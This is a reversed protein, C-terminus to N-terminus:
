PLSEQSLPTLNRRIHRPLRLIRLLTTRKPIGAKSLSANRANKSLSKGCTLWKMRSSLCTLVVRLNICPPSVDVFSLYTLDRKSVEGGPIHNADSQKRSIQKAESAIDGQPRNERELTKGIQNGHDNALSQHRPFLDTPHPEVYSEEQTQYSFKRSANKMQAATQEIPKADDVATASSLRGEREAQRKALKAQFQEFSSPQQGNVKQRRLTAKGVVPRSPPLEPEALKAPKREQTTHRGYNEKAAEVAELKSKLAQNEDVLGANEAKLQEVTFYAVGLQSVASDREKTVNRLATESVAAKRDISEM